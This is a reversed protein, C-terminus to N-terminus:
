RANETGDPLAVDFARTTADMDARFAADAAAEAYAAYLRLRRRERLAAIVAEEVFADSSPAEGADVLTRVADTVRAHLRLTVKKLPDAATSRRRQPAQVVLAKPM